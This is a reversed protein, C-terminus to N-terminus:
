KSLQYEDEIKKLNKSFIDLINKKETKALKQDLLRYLFVRERADHHDLLDKFRFYNDFQHVLKIELQKISEWSKLTNIFRDIQRLIESHERLYFEIAGGAPAPNILRQYVPILLKEEDLVHQRILHQIYVLLHIADKRRNNMLHLQHQLFLEDIYLHFNNLASISNYKLPIPNMFFVIQSDPPETVVM